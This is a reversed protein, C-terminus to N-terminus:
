AALETKLQNFSRQNYYNQGLRVNDRLSLRQRKEQCLRRPLDLLLKNIFQQIKCKQLAIFFCHDAILYNTFKFASLEKGLLFAYHMLISTMSGILLIMILRGYLLCYFREKNSGKFIHMKLCSKWQKFILEVRWRARYSAMVSESSLINEPVNTIFISYDLLHAKKKGVTLGKRKATANIKRRRKNAVEESLKCAVLRVQYKEIGVFVIIDLLGQHSYQDIFKALDIPKKDNINKYVNVDSKLRTIYCAGVVAIEKLKSIAFYGLDRILLDNKQLMGTVRGGLVQDTKKGECVYIDVFQESIYDFIYDIKFGANSGHLSGGCGQFHPSLKEHLEGVTSDQILVRNFTALNPLDSLAVFEKQFIEKLMKGFCSEMFKKANITNMRQALAPASINCANNINHMRVCLSNLTEAELFANPLMMAQAFEYGKIQSSSRQIFGVRKALDNCFNPSVLKQFKDIIKELDHMKNEM